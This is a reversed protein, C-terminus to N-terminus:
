GAKFTSWANQWLAQGETTLADITVGKVFDSKRVITSSLNAPIYGQSVLTNPDIATLPPIYGNWTFNELGNQNDLMFDLFAHALVPHKAGRLIAIMDNQTEARADPRWYGLV